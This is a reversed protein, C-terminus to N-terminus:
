PRDLDIVREPRHARMLRDLDFAADRVRGGDTEIGRVRMSMTASGDSVAIEVGTMFEASEAASVSVARPDSLRSTVLSAGVADLVDVRTPPVTGPEFVYRGTARGAEDRPEILVRGGLPIVSGREVAAEDIAAWGLLRAVDAPQVPLPLGGGASEGGVWAVDERLDFMWYREGDGGAWLGEQGLKGVTLALEGPKRFVLVGDGSEQRDKGEERWRLKIGLRCWVVEIKAANANHRRVLEIAEARTITPEAM